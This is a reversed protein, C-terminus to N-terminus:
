NDDLNIQYKPNEILAKFADINRLPDWLPDKKLLEVSILGNQQLLFELKAIAEDYRGIMLLIRAMDLERYFGRFADVSINMIALAKDNAAMAEETMGLGAYVIGLSSYIRSDDPLESLQDELVRRAEQFHMNALERDSMVYYILGLQLPKPTYAWQDAMIRHPSSELISIAEEYNQDILNVHSRMMYMWPDDINQNNSLLARAKDVEGHALHERALFIYSITASPNLDIGTKLYDEAQAYRGLMTLTAGAANWSEWGSPNLSIARDQYEFAKQFQGMRRFVFGVWLHLQDNNTYESKLKELIQLARPYNLTCHYFYKATEHQVEMLDPDLAIAKDLYEKTQALHKESKDYHWWYIWRSASALGVWALTFNPDIEVARNFM